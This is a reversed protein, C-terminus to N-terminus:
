QFTNKYSVYCVSSLFEPFPPVEWQNNFSSSWSPYSPPVMLSVFISNYTVHSKLNWQTQVESGHCRNPNVPKLQKTRLLLMTHPGLFLSYGHEREWPEISLDITRSSMYKLSDVAPPVGYNASDGKLQDRNKGSYASVRFIICNMQFRLRPFSCFGYGVMGGLFVCM